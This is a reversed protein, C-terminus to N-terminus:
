LPCKIMCLKLCRQREPLSFHSFAIALQMQDDERAARALEAVSFLKARAMSLMQEKKHPLSNDALWKSLCKLQEFQSVQTRCAVTAFNYRVETDAVAKRADDIWVKRAHIDVDTAALIGRFIAVVRVIMFVDKPISNIRIARLEPPFEPDLPSLRAEPLDMRTDFLISAITKILVPDETTFHVKLYRLVGILDDSEDHLAIVLHAFLIRTEDPLIKVQGFDLLALNHSEQFLINGPHPDSHFIGLKFLQYGFCEILNFLSNHMQQKRSVSMSDLPSTLIYSALTDGEAFTMTLVRGTCLDEIPVPIHIKSYNQRICQGMVSLM